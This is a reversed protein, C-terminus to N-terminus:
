VSTLHKPSRQQQKVAPISDKSADAEARPPRSGRPLKKKVPEAEGRGWVTKCRDQRPRSRVAEAESSGWLKQRPRPETQFTAGQRPETTILWSLLTRGRLDLELKFGTFDWVSSHCLDGRGLLAPGRPWNGETMCNPKFRGFKANSYM